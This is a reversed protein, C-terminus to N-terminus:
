LNKLMKITTSKFDKVTLKLSQTMQSKWQNHNENVTPWMQRTREMDWSKIVDYMSDLMYLVINPLSQIVTNQNPELPLLDKSWPTSLTFPWDNLNKQSGTSSPLYCSSHSKILRQEVLVGDKQVVGAKIQGTRWQLSPSPQLVLFHEEVKINLDPLTWPWLEILCIICNREMVTRCRSSSEPPPTIPDLSKTKVDPARESELRYQWGTSYEDRCLRGPWLVGTKTM